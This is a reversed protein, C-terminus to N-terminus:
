KDSGKKVSSLLLVTGAAAFLAASVLMIVVPAPLYFTGGDKIYTIFDTKVAESVATLLSTM